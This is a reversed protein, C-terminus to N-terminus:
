GLSVQNKLGRSIQRRPLFLQNPLFQRIEIVLDVPQTLQRFLEDSDHNCILDDVRKRNLAELSGVIVYKLHM